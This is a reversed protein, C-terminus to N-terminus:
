AHPPGADLQLVGVWFVGAVYLCRGHGVAIAAAAVVPRPVAGLPGGWDVPLCGAVPSLECANWFIGPRHAADVRPYQCWRADREHPDFDDVGFVAARQLQGHQAHGLHCITEMPGLASQWTAFGVQGHAASDCIGLGM